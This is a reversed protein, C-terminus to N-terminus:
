THTRTHSHTLTHARAHSHTHKHTHTHMQAYTHTHQVNRQCATRASGAHTCCDSGASAGSCEISERVQASAYVADSENMVVSFADFEVEDGDRRASSSGGTSSGINSSMGISM